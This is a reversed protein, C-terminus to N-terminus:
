YANLVASSLRGQPEQPMQPVYVGLSRRKRRTGWLAPTATECSPCGLGVASAMIKKAPTSTDALKTSKAAFDKVGDITQMGAMGQLASKALVSMTDAGKIGASGYGSGVIIVGRKVLLMKEDKKVDGTPKHIAGIVARSAMAGVVLGVVVTATDTFDKSKPNTFKM